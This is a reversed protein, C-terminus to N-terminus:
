GPRIQLIHTDTAMENLIPTSLFANANSITITGLESADYFPGNSEKHGVLLDLSLTTRDSLDYSASGYFNERM